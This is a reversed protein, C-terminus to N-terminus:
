EPKRINELFFQFAEEPKVDKVIELVNWMSEDGGVVYDNRCSSSRMYASSTLCVCLRICILPFVLSIEDYTLEFESNFGAIVEAACHLLIGRPKDLLCDAIAIAIENVLESYIVDGFDIIGVISQALDDVLLNAGNADNHIFQRRLSAMSPQVYKRYQKVFHDILSLQSPSSIFVKHCEIIDICNHLDWNIPRNSKPDFPFTSLVKDLRGLFCGLNFLLQMSHSPVNEFLTGPLYTMLRVYYPAAVGVKQFHTVKENQMTAVNKPLPLDTQQLFDLLSVLFELFSISENENSIKLVYEGHETSVLFNQDDYSPLEKVNTVRLAFKTEM